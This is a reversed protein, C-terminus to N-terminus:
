HLVPPQASGIRTQGPLAAMTQLNDKRSPMQLKIAQLPVGPKGSDSAQHTTLVVDLLGVKGQFILYGRLPSWASLGRPLGTM